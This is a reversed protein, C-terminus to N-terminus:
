IEEDDNVSPLSPPFDLHPASSVVPASVISSSSSSTPTLKKKSKSVLARRHPLYDQMVDTPWDSCESCRTVLSCLVDRCHLCVTLRDYNLSSMRRSRCCCSCHASVDVSAPPDSSTSAMPASTM